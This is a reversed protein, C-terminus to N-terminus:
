ARGAQPAADRISGGCAPCNPQAPFRSYVLDDPAMLNLGYRFGPELAPAGTLLALAAHGILLGSMGATIANAPNWPMRPSAVNEDTGPPLDLQRRDREGMRQCEWCAGHGPVHVGATILPGQYGGDIWALGATLCVQNTWRRIEPPRDACMLLVDYPSHDVDKILAELDHPGTILRQERTIRIHSNRAELAEATADVKPRGLDAETYPQRNLNSPEVTDPDVCHLHGVGSAALAHAAAGGTGGVGVLLVHSRRLREQLEWASAVGSRDMWRLLTVGRGYREQEETTFASPAVAADELHGADRLEGLAARVSQMTLPPHKAIVLEAIEDSGRTGDAAQIVDWVWGDPDEIEAGSGFIVSGIRM